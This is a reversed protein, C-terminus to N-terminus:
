RQVEFDQVAQEQEPDMIVRMHSGRRLKNLHKLGRIDLFLIPNGWCHVEELNTHSSLDLESIQNDACNLYKLELASSLDLSKLRNGDCEIRILKSCRSLDLNFIQNNSCDLHTLEPVCHSQLEDLQNGPCDLEKLQPVQTLNLRTLGLHSCDLSVLRELPLSGLASLSADPGGLFALDTIELGNVWQLRRCCLVRLDFSVKLLKGDAFHLRKFFPVEYPNSGAIRHYHDLDSYNHLCRIVEGPELGTEEAWILIQRYDPECWEYKGIRFKKAVPAHQEKSVLVLTDAVMGSLIRKVSPVAKEIAIPSRPVLAKEKKENM